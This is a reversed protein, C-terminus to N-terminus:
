RVKSIAKDLPHPLPPGNWTQFGGRGGVKKKGNQTPNMSKDKKKQDFPPEFGRIGREPDALAKGGRVERGEDGRGEGKGVRLRGGRRGLRDQGRGERM